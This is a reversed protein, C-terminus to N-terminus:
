REKHKVGEAASATAMSVPLVIPNEDKFRAMLQPPPDARGDLSLFFYEVNRQGGSANKNFQHRFVAEIVDLRDAARPTPRTTSVPQTSAVEAPANGASRANGRDCGATFALLLTVTIARNTPM